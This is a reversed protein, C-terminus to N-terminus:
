GAPAASSVTMEARVLAVLEDETLPDVSVRCGDETYFISASVDRDPFCQTVVHYYVSIQKRYESQAHRGRDTKYDIIKVENPRM